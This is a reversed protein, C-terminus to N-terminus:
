ALDELALVILNHTFHMLMPLALSGTGVRAYGLGVGVLTLIPISLPVGLHAMGFMVSSVLVATHTGTIHRLTDLALYRFFLEEILAPQACIVLINELTLRDRPVAEDFWVPVAIIRKLFYHYGVNLGLLTALLPFGGCWTGLRTSLAPPSFRGPRGVWFVAGIVLLADVIELTVLQSFRSERLEPHKEPDQMGFHILAGYVVSTGLLAGFACLLRVVGDGTSAVSASKPDAAASVTRLTARCYPCRDRGAEVFKGCRWCEVLPEAEAPEVFPLDDDPERDDHAYENM